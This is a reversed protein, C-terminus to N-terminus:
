EKPIGLAALFGSYNNLSDDPEAISSDPASPPSVVVATPSPATALACAASILAQVKSSYDAAKAPPTTSFTPTPTNDSRHFRTSRFSSRGHLKKQPQSYHRSMKNISPPKPCNRQIHGMENCNRCIKDKVWEEFPIRHGLKATLTMYEEYESIDSGSDSDYDPNTIFASKGLTGNGVELWRQGTLLEAYHVELDNMVAILTKYLSDQRLVTKVLSSSIMSRQHHCLQTFDPTSSRAFGELVRHVIDSLLRTTGLSQAIAKIRLTAKTVDEGPFKQIDFTRVYEEMARRSEHTNQVMRNIILRLLSISGKDIDQLEAFDSKVEVRLDLDLSKWLKDALWADSIIEQEGGFLRLM